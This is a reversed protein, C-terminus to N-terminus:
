WEKTHNMSLNEKFQASNSRTVTRFRAQITTSRVTSGGGRRPSVHVGGRRKHDEALQRISRQGRQVRCDAVGHAVNQAAAAESGLRERLLGSPVRVGTRLLSRHCAPDIIQDSVM